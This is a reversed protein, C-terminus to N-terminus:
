ESRRYPDWAAPAGVRADLHRRLRALVDEPDLSSPCSGEWRLRPTVAGAGDFRWHGARDGVGATRRGGGAQLGDLEAALPALDVRPFAPPRALRVWTEYRFRVRVGRDDVTAVRLCRTASHVAAPHLPDGGWAAADPWGAPGPRLVALDREPEETLIATGDALAAVAADFAALEARWWAAHPAPDALLDPLQALATGILVGTADLGRRRGRAVDAAPTRAPDLVTALAFAVMAARRDRVVGFDGVRAVEVLLDGVDGAVDPLTLAAVATTADEDPHDATVLGVHPPLVRRRRALLASETSLDARLGVPTPTGPWHSLTLVTGARPAGDVAVNPRGAVEAPSVFTRPGDPRRRRWGAVGRGGAPRRGAPAM